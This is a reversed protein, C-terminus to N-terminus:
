TRFGHRPRAPIARGGCRRTTAWTVVAMEQVDIREPGAREIRAAVQPGTGVFADKRFEAM